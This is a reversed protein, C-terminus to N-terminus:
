SRFGGRGFPKATKFESALVDLRDAEEDSIAFSVAGANAAAQEPNKAGPIPLVEPFRTLWNISVQAPTKGHVEGIKELEQILPMVMDIKEKSFYSFHKRWDKPRSDPRYKGTLIGRGLPCYALLAVGLERCADLVGDAEPSRHVLSFEVQNSALGYGRKKLAEDAKRMAEATYNSVGAARIKGSDIADAMADMLEEISLKGGPFHVQYLEISDLGLRALSKDLAKLFAKKTFRFPMPAYKTAIGVGAKGVAAFIGGIAKESKGFGYVEATDFLDVGGATAAEFTKRADDPRITSGYGWFRSGSWPMTGIGVGYYTKDSIQKTKM